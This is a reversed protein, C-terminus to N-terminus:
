CCIEFIHTASAYLEYKMEHEKYWAWAVGCLAMYLICLLIFSMQFPTLGCISRCHLRPPIQPPTAYEYMLASVDYTKRVSYVPLPLTPYRHRRIDIKYAKTNSTPVYSSELM